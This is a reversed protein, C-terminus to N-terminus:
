VATSITASRALSYNQVIFPKIVFRKGIGRFRMEELITRELRPIIKEYENPYEKLLQELQVINTTARLNNDFEEREELKEIGANAEAVFESQPYEMLFKRYAEITNTNKAREWTLKEIRRKAEDTFESEPHKTLFEEYAWITDSKQTKQWHGQTSACGTILVTCLLFIGLHLGNTITKTRM